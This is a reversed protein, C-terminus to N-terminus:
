AHAEDGAAMADIWLAVQRGLQQPEDAPVVGAQRPQLCVEVGDKVPGGARDTEFAVPQSVLEGQPLAQLDRRLRAGVNDERNVAVNLPQGLLLQVPRDFVM